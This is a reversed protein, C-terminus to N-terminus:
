RLNCFSRYRLIDDFLPYGTNLKCFVPCHLWGPMGVRTQECSGQFEIIKQEM